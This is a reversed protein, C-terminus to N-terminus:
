EFVIISENGSNVKHSIRRKFQKELIYEVFEAIFMSLSNSFAYIRLFTREKVDKKIEVKVRKGFYYSLFELLYGLFADLTINSPLEKEEWIIFSILEGRLKNWIKEKADLSLETLITELLLNLLAVPITIIKEKNQYYNIGMDIYYTLLKNLTVREKQAIEKLTLFSEIPIRISLNVSRQPM